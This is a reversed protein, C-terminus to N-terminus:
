IIVDCVGRCQTAQVRQAIQVDTAIPNHLEIETVTQDIKLYEAGRVVVKPVYSRRERRRQRNQIECVVTKVIQVEKILHNQELYQLWEIYTAIADRLQDVQSKQAGIDAQMSQLDSNRTQELIELHNLKNFM